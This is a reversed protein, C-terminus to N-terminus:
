ARNKTPRTIMRWASYLLIISGAGAAAKYLLNERKSVLLSNLHFNDPVDCIPCDHGPYIDSVSGGQYLLPTSTGFLELQGIQSKYSMYADIHLQIPYLNKLLAKAGRKSVFYAHALVFSHIRSTNPGATSDESAAAINPGLMWVDWKTSDKLLNNSQVYEKISKFSGAPLAIDDEFILVVDTDNQKLLWEYVSSHSLYCGVAGPTNIFEHGRRTKKHINYKTLVSIRDDNLIDISKGDVGSWRQIQPFEAFGPQAQVREWRDPRRDLNLCVIPIQDVNWAM